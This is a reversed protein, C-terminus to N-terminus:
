QVVIVERIGDLKEVPEVVASSLRGTNDTKVETVRGVIRGEPYIGGSGSTELLDGVILGNNNEIFSVKCMGKRYLESDGEIVGIDGTRSVRIGTANGVNIITSVTAWNAGVEIVRGVVGNVGLVCCGIQVGDSTGKNIEITDYWNDSSYAIVRAATMNYSSMDRDINLLARLRENEEKYKEADTGETELRYIESRLKENEAKYSQAEWLFNVLGETRAAIYEVGNQFPSFVSRIANTVPNSGSFHVVVACLAAAATVIVAPLVGRKKLIDM